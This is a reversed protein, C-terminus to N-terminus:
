DLNLLTKIKELTLGKKKILYKWHGRPKSDWGKYPKHVDMPEPCNIYGWSELDNLIRKVPMSPDSIYHRWVVYDLLKRDSVLDIFSMAKLELRKYIYLYSKPPQM